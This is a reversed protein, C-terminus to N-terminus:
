GEFFKKYMRSIYLQKFNLSDHANKIIFERNDRNVMTFNFIGYYRYDIFTKAAQKFLNHNIMVLLSQFSYIHLFSMFRIFDVINIESIPNPEEGFVFPLEFHINFIPFYEVSTDDINMSFNHAIRKVYRIFKINSLLYSKQKEKKTTLFASHIDHFDM